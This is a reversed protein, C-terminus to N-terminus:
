WAAPKTIVGHADSFTNPFQSNAFHHVRPSVVFSALRKLEFSGKPRPPILGIIIGRDQQAMRLPTILDSDNSIVVACDCDGRYADRLLHSGLNVDSGKEETKLIWDTVVNGQPDTKLLPQNGAMQWRGTQPDSEVLPARTVGVLFTGFEVTVRPLTALARLYTLQRLPQDPDHPRSLVKATCYIIRQVQNKPLISDCFRELDLWKYPSRKLRGYYLNFGDIYVNTRV